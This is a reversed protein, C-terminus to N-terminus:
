TISTSTYLLLLIRMWIYGLVSIHFHSIVAYIGIVIPEILRGKFPQNYLYCSERNDSSLMIRYMDSFNVCDLQPSQDRGREKVAFVMWPNTSIFILPHLYSFTNIYERFGAKKGV